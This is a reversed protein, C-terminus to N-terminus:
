GKKKDEGEPEELFFTIPLKYLVAVNKGKDQGPILRPLLQVVRAAEKRLAQTQAQSKIDTIVGTSDIKFSVFASYKGPFIIGKSAEDGNFNEAVHKSIHKSLCKKLTANDDGICGPFVPVKEVTALTFSGSISDKIIGTFDIAEQAVVVSTSALLCLAIIFYKM